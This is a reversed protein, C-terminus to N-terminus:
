AGLATWIPGNTWKKPTYSHIYTSREIKTGRLQRTFHALLGLHAWSQWIRASCADWCMFLLIGHTDICVDIIELMTYIDLCKAWDHMFQALLDTSGIVAADVSLLRQWQCDIFKRCLSWPLRMWDVASALRFSIQCVFIKSQYSVVPIVNFYNIIYIYIYIYM